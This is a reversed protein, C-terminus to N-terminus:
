SRELRAAYPNVQALYPALMRDVALYRKTQPSYDDYETEIPGIKQRAIARSLDPALAGSRSKLALLSCADRVAPPIVTDLITIAEPMFGPDYTGVNFAAYAGVRPWSLRQTVSARGGSWALAYAGELYDTALRLAVEKAAGDLAAWAANGRGAHYADAEAVSAYSEAEAGGVTTDLAM